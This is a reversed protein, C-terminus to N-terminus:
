PVISPSPLIPQYSIIVLSLRQTFHLFLPAPLLFLLPPFCTYPFQPHSNFATRLM